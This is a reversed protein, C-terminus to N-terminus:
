FDCKSYKKQAICCSFRSCLTGFCVVTLLKDSHTSKSDNSCPRSKNSNRSSSPLGCFGVGGVVTIVDTSAWNWKLEINKGNSEGSRVGEIVRVGLAGWLGTFGVSIMFCDRLKTGLVRLQALHIFGPPPVYDAFSEAAM